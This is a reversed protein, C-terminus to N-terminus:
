SDEYSYELDYAFQVLADTSTYGSGLSDVIGAWMFLGTNTPQNATDNFILTKKMMRTCNIRILKSLNYDNNHLGTTVGVNNGNQFGIKHIRDYYVTFYETNITRCLSLSTTSNFPSTLGGTRLLQDFDITTPAAISFKLKGIFLRVNWQGVQEPVQSNTIVSLTNAPYVSMYGRLMLNKLKVSNGIRGNENVSQAITPSLTVVTSGTITSVGSQYIEMYQDTQCVEKNESARSLEMKVINKVMEVSKKKNVKTYTNSSKPKIYVKQKRVSKYQKTAPM